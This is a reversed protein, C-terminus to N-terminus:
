GCKMALESSTLNREAREGGLDVLDIGCGLEYSLEVAPPCVVGGAGYVSQVLVLTRSLVLGLLGVPQCLPCGFLGFLVLWLLLLLLRHAVTRRAQPHASTPPTCWFKPPRGRPHVTTVFETKSSGM